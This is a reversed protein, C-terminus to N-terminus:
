QYPTYTSEPYTTSTLVVTAKDDKLAWDIQSLYVKMNRAGVAELMETSVCADFAKEFHPPMHRYDMFHVTVRDQVNARRINEEAGRQQEVSITITDVTCGMKAAAIALGGWGSGIELLRDGPRLRAKDLIYAIKRAQADELDGPRRHGELDGRVGGEEKGWIPCSYMMEKSLFARYMENSANYGAVNEISKTIGHSLFFTTVVDFCRLLKYFPSSLGGLQDLNDIYLNLLAKLDSTEFEGAMYAESFGIDYSLLIRLWFMESRIILTVPPTQEGEDLSGFTRQGIAADYLDLRGRTVGEQLASLVRNRAFTIVYDWVIVTLYSKLQYLSPPTLAAYTSSSTM